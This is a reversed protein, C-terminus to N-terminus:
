GRELSEAMFICDRNFTPGHFMRAVRLYEKFGHTKLLHLIATQENSVCMSIELNKLRSLVTNILDAAIDGRGAECVLPGLEAMGNFVKAIIYGNLKKDKISVYCLNDEDLLIPELMRGRNIGLCSYDFSLAKEMDAKGAQSIQEDKVTAPSKGKLVLFNSDCQFGLKRYFSVREMYAYLGITSVGKDKLYKIAHTALLVGAGKGRHEECVILNSFWGLSDFAVTTVIGVKESDCLLTFCGKPELEMMFEFDGAGLNWSMTDALSAAFPIDEKSMERINYM